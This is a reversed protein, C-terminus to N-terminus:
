APRQESTLLFKVTAYVVLYRTSSGPATHLNRALYSNLAWYRSHQLSQSARVTCSSRSTASWSLKCRHAAAGQCRLLCPAQIILSQVVATYMPSSCLSAPWLCSNPHVSLLRSDATIPHQLHFIGTVMQQHPTAPPVVQLQAVCLALSQRHTGCGWAIHVDSVAPQVARLVAATPCGCGGRIACHM